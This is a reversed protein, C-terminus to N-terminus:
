PRELSTPIRATTTAFNFDALYLPLYKKSVNHYTGIIGRKLLAWFSEISNTHIEGRVYKGAKHNVVGQRLRAGLRGYGAFEDTAVLTVEDSVVKRVFRNLTYQSTDEIIQCVINGKRSIAGVVSIKGVAGRGQHKRKSAHKNGEKGGIFTEDVEVIGMLQKFEPDNMAARLRHCVYWATSLSSQEGFFMRRIQRSSIGKKSQLMTYLVKFWTLLPVKTNEFVTGVLLSFRYANGTRCEPNSCEWKWPQNINYVTETKGCRPCRVHGDPWRRNFLFERCANEDPFAIMMEQFTMM